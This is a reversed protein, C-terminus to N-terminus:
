RGEGGLTGEWGPPPEGPFMAASEEASLDRTRVFRGTERDLRGMEIAMGLVGFVSENDENLIFDPRLYVTSAVPSGPAPTLRLAAVHRQRVDSEM